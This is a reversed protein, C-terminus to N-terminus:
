RGTRRPDIPTLAPERDEIAQAADLLLDERFRAGILWARHFGATAARTFANPFVGDFHRSAATM